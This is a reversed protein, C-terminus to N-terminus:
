DTGTTMPEWRTGNFCYPRHLTLDYVMLSEAPSVIAERQTTTMRPPLLGKTTSAIELKASASSVATVGIGVSDTAARGLIVTNNGTVLAGSGIATGYILGDAVDAGHGIITHNYGTVCTPATAYGVFVNNGGTTLSTGSNSGVATDHTSTLSAVLSDHGIAVNESQTTLAALSGYGLAVNYSGTTALLMSLAGGAFNGTGTQLTNLAEYGIAVNKSATTAGNSNSMTANGVAVNHDGTFGTPDAGYLADVGIGVNGIGSRLQYGASTGVFTNAVAGGAGGGVGAMYMTNNGVCVNSDGVIHQRLSSDGIAVNYNSTLNSYLALNGLATASVGTTNRSGACSGIFTNQVGTNVLGASYGIITTTSVERFFSRIEIKTGTMTGGAPNTVTVTGTGLNLDEEVVKEYVLAM